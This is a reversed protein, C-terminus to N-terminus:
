RVYRYYGEVRRAWKPSALREVVTGAIQDSHLMTGNGLAIGVHIPRGDICLQVVDGPAPSTVSDWKPAHCTWADSHCTTYLPLEIGLVEQHFMVVAGWCDWGAWCRGQSVFPVTIARTTFEALPMM